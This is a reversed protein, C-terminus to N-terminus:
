ASGTKNGGSRREIGWVVGISVLYLAMLPATFVLMTFADGTPTIVAAVIMLVVLAHASHRWLWRANVLGLWGLLGLVAPLEFLIGGSLCLATIFGFYREQSLTPEAQPPAFGLLFQLSFPLLLFYVFLVGCIFLLLILPLIPAVIRRESRTLAPAIFAWLEYLVVPSALVVGGFMALRMYVFFPEVPSFYNLKIGPQAHLLPAVLLSYIWLRVVYAVVAGLVVALASIFLRHRLEALHEWFSMTRQPNRGSM